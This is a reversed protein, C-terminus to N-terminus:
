RGSLLPLGVLGACAWYHAAGADLPFAAVFSMDAQKALAVAKHVLAKGGGRGNLCGLQGVELGRGGCVAALTAAELVSGHLTAVLLTEEGYDVQILPHGGIM